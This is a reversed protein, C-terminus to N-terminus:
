LIGIDEFCQKYIATKKVLQMPYARSSSPLRYIKFEREHHIFSECGGMPPHKIKDSFHLRLSETAKEGTTIFTHCLPILQLMDSVNLPDVIQLFKDSANNKLRIVKQGVDAIGIGKDTLTTKLLNVDFSMKDESLFYDKDDFFALGVIRWMDNRFNPYYFEMNWKCRAPPFSGIMIAKVKPSIFPNLPHIELISDFSTEM